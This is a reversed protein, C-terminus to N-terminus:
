HMIEEYKEVGRPTTITKGWEEEVTIRLLEWSNSNRYNNTGNQEKRVTHWRILNGTM